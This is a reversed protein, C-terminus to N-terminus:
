IDSERVPSIHFIRPEFSPKIRLLEGNNLSTTWDLLIGTTLAFAASGLVGFLRQRGLQGKHKKILCITTADLMTFSTGLSATALIRIILYLWFGRNHNYNDFNETLQLSEQSAFLSNNQVILAPCKIPCDCNLVARESTNSLVLQNVPFLCNSANNFSNMKEFMVQLPLGKDLPYCETADGDNEICIEIGGTQNDNCSELCTTSLLHLSSPLETPPLDDSSNVSQTCREPYEIFTKRSQQCALYVWMNESSNNSYSSSMREPLVSHADISLLLTHFGGTALISGM